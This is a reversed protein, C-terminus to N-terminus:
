SGLAMQAHKVLWLLALGSIYVFGFSAMVLVISIALVAMKRAVECVTHIVKDWDM